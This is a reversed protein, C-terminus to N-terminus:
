PACGGRFANTVLMPALTLTVWFAAKKPVNSPCNPPPPALETPPVPPMTKVQHCRSHAKARPRRMEATGNGPSSEIKELRQPAMQPRGYHGYAGDGARNGGAVMMCTKQYQHGANNGPGGISYIFTIGGNGGTGGNIVSTVGNNGDGLTSISGGAFNAIAEGGFGGEGGQGGRAFTSGGGTGGAGRVSQALIGGQNVNLAQGTFTVTVNGGDVGNGGTGGDTFVSHGGTGGQSGVSIGVVAVPPNVNGANSGGVCRAARQRPSKSLWQRALSEPRVAELNRQRTRFV